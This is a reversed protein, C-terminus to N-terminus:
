WRARDSKKWAAGVGPAAKENTAADDGGRSRVDVRPARSKARGACGTGRVGAGDGTDSGVACGCVSRETLAGGDWSASKRALGGAVQADKGPHTAEGGEEGGGGTADRAIQNGERKEENEGGLDVPGFEGGGAGLKGERQDDRREHEDTQRKRNLGCAPPQQEAGLLDRERKMPGMDDSPDTLEVVGEEKAADAPVGGANVVQQAVGGRLPGGAQRGEHDVAGGTEEQQKGNGGDSEGGAGTGEDGLRAQAPKKDGGRDEGEAADNKRDPQQAGIGATPGCRQRTHETGVTQGGGGSQEGAHSGRGASM